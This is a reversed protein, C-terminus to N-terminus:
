LALLHLPLVMFILSTVCFIIVGPLRAHVKGKRGIQVNQSCMNCVFCFFMCVVISTGPLVFLLSVEETPELGIDEMVTFVGVAWLRNYLFWDVDEGKEEWGEGFAGLGTRAIYFGNTVIDSFSLVCALTLLCPWYLFFDFLVNFYIKTDHHCHPQQRPFTKCSPPTPDFLPLRRCTAPAFFFLLLFVSLTAM